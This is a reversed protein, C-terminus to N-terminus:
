NRRHLKRSWGLREAARRIDRRYSLASTILYLAIPGLIVMIAIANDPILDLGGRGLSWLLLCYLSAIGSRILSARPDYAETEIRDEDVGYYLQAMRSAGDWNGFEVTPGIALMLM